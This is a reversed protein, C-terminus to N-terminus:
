ADADDEGEDDDDSGLLVGRGVLPALPDGERIASTAPDWVFRNARLARIVERAAEDAEELEERTWPALAVGVEDVGGPLLLYGTDVEGRELAEPPLLGLGRALHRYLPLQLDIWVKSGKRGKRHVADPARASESTKVDLLQWRGTAPHHDIRDIRGSLHVAEGDVQFPIGPAHRPPGAEVHLIRWGEAWRAAEVRALARLRLRLQERQLHLAPLPRLGFREQFSAELHAELAAAIAEPDGEERRVAERAWREVVEHALTGFAMPDLERAEDTVTELTLVRELAYRYPDKLLAAFDTVRIRDPPHPAAIVPEPPLLFPRAPPPPTKSEARRPGEPEPPPAPHPEASPAPDSAEGLLALVRGAVESPPGALLLRSLRLPNGEADRRGAVLLAGPRSALIAELLYQDRARRLRNDPLGLLSRLAHPLFPHATVSDPLHPENVGTVVLEPADDLHLELWGLLEVAGEDASPPVAAEGIEELLIRLARSPSVPAEDLAPPLAEFGELATGLAQLFAVLERDHPAEREVTRGPHLAVVLARVPAAWERLPRPPVPREGEEVFGHKEFLAAVEDRLAQFRQAEPSSGAVFGGAVAQFHRAQYRDAVAVPDRGELGALKEPPLARVFGPHRLLDALADRDWGELLRAVAELLRWPVSRHLPRGAADRNPVGAEGLASRLLPVLAEDPVGVTVEEPARAGGLGRLFDVTARAQEDPRTVVRLNRAPISLPRGEWREPDVAGLPDFHDALEEPAHVLATVPGSWAGVLTRVVGPPDVVGVLVLPPPASASASPPASATPAGGAGLGALVRARASERDELGANALLTRFRGQARALAGWRAEDNYLLLDGARRCRRVVEAFDAGEAGLQAHLGAVLPSLAALTQTAAPDPAGGPLRPPASTPATSPAAVPAAERPRNTGDGSQFGGRPRNTGDGSEFGGRPRNTGDGSEFGGRPLLLAQDEASMGALATRWAAAEVQPHPAPRTPPHLREPLSGVTVLEPPALTLGRAEAEELLLELLRRGARAGPLVVRWGSLELSGPRPPAAAALWEAAAPLAPRHWGLFVRELSAAGPSPAPAPEPPPLDSTM